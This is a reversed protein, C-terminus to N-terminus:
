GRSATPLLWTALRCDPSWSLRRGTRLARNSPAARPWTTKSWGFWAAVAQNPVLLYGATNQNFTVGAFMGPKLAGDPNPLSIEVLYTKTAPDAAAAVHAITGTLPQDSAATVTVQVKQGATLGNIQDESVYPPTFPM